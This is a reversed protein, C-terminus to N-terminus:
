TSAGCQKALVHAWESFEYFWIYEMKHLEDTKSTSEFM